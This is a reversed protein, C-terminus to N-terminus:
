MNRIRKAMNWRTQHDAKLILNSNGELLEFLKVGADFENLPTAIEVISAIGWNEEVVRLVMKVEDKKMLAMNGQPHRTDVLPSLSFDPVLEGVTYTGHFETLLSSAQQLDITVLKWEDPSFTTKMPPPPAIIYAVCLVVYLIMISSFQVGWHLRVRM